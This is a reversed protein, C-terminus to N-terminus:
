PDTALTKVTGSPFKCRLEGTTSYYIIIHSAVPPPDVIARQSLTLYGQNGIEVTTGNGHVEGMKVKQNALRVISFADAPDEILNPTGILLWKAGDHFWVEDSVIAMDGRLAEPFTWQALATSYVGWGNGNGIFDGTPVGLIAVRQNDVPSVPPNNTVSSTDYSRPWQNSVNAAITSYVVKTGQGFNELAGSNSSEFVEVRELTDMAGYHLIGRGTEFGAGDQSIAYYVEALDDFASRWTRFKANPAGGLVFDGTGTTTSTELVFDHVEPM